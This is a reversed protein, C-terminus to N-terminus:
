GIAINDCGNQKIFLNVGHYMELEKCKVCQASHWVNNMMVIVAQQSQLQKM